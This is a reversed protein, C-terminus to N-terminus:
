GPDGLALPVFLRAVIALPRRRSQRARPATPGPAGKEDAGAPPVAVAARLRGDGSRWEDGGAAAVAGSEDSTMPVTPMSTGDEPPPDGDPKPPFLGTSGGGYPSAASCSALFIEWKESPRTTAVTTVAPSPSSQREYSARNPSPTVLGPSTCKMDLANRSLRVLALSAPDVPVACNATSQPSLSYAGM